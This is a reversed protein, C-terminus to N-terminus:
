QNDSRELFYQQAHRFDGENWELEFSSSLLNINLEPGRLSLPADSKVFKINDFDLSFGSNIRNLNENDFRFIRMLGINEPSSTFYRKMLFLILEKKMQERFNLSNLICKRVLGDGGFSFRINEPTSFADM